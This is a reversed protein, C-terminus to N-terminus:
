ILSVGLDFGVNVLEIDELGSLGDSQLMSALASENWEINPHGVKKGKLDSPSDYGTSQLVMISNLPHQVIGLVSVGGIKDGGKKDRALLVDPQYNIGFNDKQSAVTRLIDDPNSPTHIEVELNEDSFYGKDEAIYLGLHNANPYWDLAITVKELSANNSCGFLGLLLVMLIGAKILLVSMRKM